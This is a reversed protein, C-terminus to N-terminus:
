REILGDMLKNSRGDSLTKRNGSETLDFETESKEGGASEHSQGVAAVCAGGGNPTQVYM